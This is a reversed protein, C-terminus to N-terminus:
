KHIKRFSWSDLVLSVEIRHFNAEANANEWHSPGKIRKICKNHSQSLFKFPDIVMCPLDM